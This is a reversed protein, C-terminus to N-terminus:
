AASPGSGRLPPVRAAMTPRQVVTSSGRPWPLAKLTREGLRWFLNSPVYTIWYTRPFPLRMTDTTVAVLARVMSYCSTSSTASVCLGTRIVPLRALATRTDSSSQSDM